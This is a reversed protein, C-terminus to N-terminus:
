NLFREDHCLRPKSPEVVLPMIVKPLISCEGVKGWVRMSGNKIRELSESKIFSAYPKCSSLNPFYQRPPEESGYTRGKFNGKFHRFLSSVDVGEEIYSLVEGGEGSSLIKRWEDVHKHLGGSVFSKPNRLPLINIDYCNEGHIM